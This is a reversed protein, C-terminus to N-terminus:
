TTRAKKLTQRPVFFKKKVTIAPKVKKIKKRNNFKASCSHGCFCRNIDIIDFSQRLFESGCEACNCKTKKAVFHQNFCEKNCFNLKSGRQLSVLILSKTRKFSNHCFDCELQVKDKGNLGELKHYINEM